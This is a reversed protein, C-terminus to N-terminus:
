AGAPSRTARNAVRRKAGPLPRATVGNVQAYGGQEYYYVHSEAECIMAEGARCHLRVGILNSM